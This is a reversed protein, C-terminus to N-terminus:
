LEAIVASLYLVSYVAHSYQIVVTEVLFVVFFLHNGAAVCRRIWACHHDFKLSEVGCTKCYHKRGPLRLVSEDMYSM